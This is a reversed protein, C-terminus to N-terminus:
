PFDQSGDVIAYNCPAARNPKTQRSKLGYVELIIAYLQCIILYQTRLARGISFVREGM